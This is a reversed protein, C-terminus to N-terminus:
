AVAWNISHILSYVSQASHGALQHIVGNTRDSLSSVGDAFDENVDFKFSGRVSAFGGTCVDNVGAGASIQVRDVLRKVCFFSGFRHRTNLCCDSSLQFELWWDGVM